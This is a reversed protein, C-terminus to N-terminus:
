RRRVAFSLALMGALLAFASPEPVQTVSLSNFYLNNQADGNDTGSNYFELNNFNGFSGTVSGSFLVGQAGLSSSRSIEYSLTNADIVTLVAQLLADGGGYDYTAVSPNNTFATNIQAGSGVNFGFITTNSDNRLNFGKNGNDFNVALDVTFQDNVTLNSSFARQATAFGGGPNAYIGFSVGGTNIDGAGATSDGIFYGAFVDTGNNNNNTLDWAGFGTGNNDDNNWSGGYNSAIDAIQASAASVLAASLLFVTINKM